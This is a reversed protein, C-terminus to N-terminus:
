GEIPLRVTVVLIDVSAAMEEPLQALPPLGKLAALVRTDIRANGTGKDLQTEALTGDQRISLTVLLREQQLAAAFAPALRKKLQARLDGLYGKLAQRNDSSAVFLKRERLRYQEIRRLVLSELAAASGQPARTAKHPAPGATMEAMTTPAPPIHAAAASVAALNRPEDLSKGLRARFQQAMVIDPTVGLEGSEYIEALRLIAPQYEASAAERYYKLAADADRPLGLGAEYMAALNAAAEAHGLAQAKFFWDVARKDNRQVGLGQAYLSGIANQAYPDDKAAALQFEAFALPYDGRKYAALGGSVDANARCCVLAWALCAIATLVASHRRM